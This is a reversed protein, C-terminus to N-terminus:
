RLTAVRARQIDPRVVSLLRLARRGHRAYSLRGVGLSTGLVCRGAWLSSHESRASVSDIMGVSDVPRFAEYAGGNMRLARPLNGCSAFGTQHSIEARFERGHHAMLQLRTTLGSVRTFGGLIRNFGSCHRDGLEQPPAASHHSRQPLYPLETMTLQLAPSGNGDRNSWCIGFKQHTAAPTAIMELSASHLLSRTKELSSGLGTKDLYNRIGSTEPVASIEALKIRVVLM